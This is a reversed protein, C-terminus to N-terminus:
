ALKAVAWAEGDGGDECERKADAGRSNDEANEVGDQELWQREGVRIAEDSQIASRPIAKGNGCNLIPLALAPAKLRDGAIFAGRWRHSASMAALCPLEHLDSLVEESGKADRNCQPM